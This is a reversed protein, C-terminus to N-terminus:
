RVFGVGQACKSDYRKNGISRKSDHSNISINKLNRIKVPWMTKTRFRGMVQLIERMSSPEDTFKAAGPEWDWDMILRWSEKETELAAVECM